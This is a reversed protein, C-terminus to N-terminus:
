IQVWNDHRIHIGTNVFVIEARGERAAELLRKQREQIPRDLFSAYRIQVLFNLNKWSFGVFGVESDRSLRRFTEGNEFQTKQNTYIKM